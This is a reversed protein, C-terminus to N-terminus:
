TLWIISTIPRIKMMILRCYILCGEMDVINKMLKLSIRIRIPPIFSKLLSPSARM